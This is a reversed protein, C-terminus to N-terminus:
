LKTTVCLLSLSLARFIILLNQNRPLILINQVKSELALYLIMTSMCDLKYHGLYLFKGLAEIADDITILNEVPYSIPEENIEIERSSILQFNNNSERFEIYELNVRKRFGLLEPFDDISRKTKQICNIEDTCSESSQLSYTVGFLIIFSIKM